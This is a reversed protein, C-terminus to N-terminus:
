VSHGFVVQLKQLQKRHTNLPLHVRVKYNESSIKEADSLNEEFVYFQFPTLLRRIDSIFIPSMTIAKVNEAYVNNRERSVMSLNLM